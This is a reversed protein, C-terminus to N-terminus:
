DTFRVLMQFQAAVPKAEVLAPEWRWKLLTERAAAIFPDSCAVGEVKNPVGAADIVVRVKCDVDGLAAKRAADPYTFPIQRKAKMASAPFTKVATSAAAASATAVSTEPAKPPEVVAAKPPEAVLQAIVPAAKPAEVVRVDSAAPRTAAPAHGAAPEPNTAVAVLAADPVADPVPPPATETPAPPVAAVPPAAVVAPPTSPTQAVPADPEHSAAFMGAGAGAALLAGLGLVFLLGVGAAGILAWPPGASPELRPAAAPQVAPATGPRASPKPAPTATPAANLTGMSSTSADLSPTRSTGAQSGTNPGTVRAVPAPTRYSSSWSSSLDGLAEPAVTHGNDLRLTVNWHPPDVLAIMCARLASALEAMSTFRDQPDKELCVRVTWEIVPPLITEASFPPPSENLQADLLNGAVQRFPLHGTLGRYLLVGLGYIDIRRDVYGGRIQEPAMYAVSGVMSGPETIEAADPGLDMVLGFDIVRVIEEDTSNAVVRVSEPRVDRHIFGLEHAEGLAAAIQRTLALLRSPDMPGEDILDALTRGDVHETVLYPRDNWVGRDYVQLVNPHSLKCLATAEREFRKTADSDHPLRDLLVLEIRRGLPQQEALWRWGSRAPGLRKIIRFRGDVVEGPRPDIDPSQLRNNMWEGNSLTSCDARIHM